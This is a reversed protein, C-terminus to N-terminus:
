SSNEETDVRVKIIDPRIYIEGVLKNGDVIDHRAEAIANAM